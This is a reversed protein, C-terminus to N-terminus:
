RYKSVSPAGNQFVVVAGLVLGGIVLYTFTPSNVMNGLGTAINGAAKNLTTTLSMVSSLMSTGMSVFPSVVQVIPNGVQNIGDVFAAGAPSSNAILAGLGNLNFGM